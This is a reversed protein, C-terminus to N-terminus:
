RPCSRASGPATLAAVVAAKVLTAQYTPDVHVSVSMAVPIPTASTARIPTSPATAARLSQLVTTSISDPGNFWIQIVPQQMQGDWTWRAQVAQVGPQGAALAEVDAISVARGFLLASRPAFMRVQSAAQRDAGGAAAVPNLVSTIGKVPKALQTLGGAPPSAEGAGFRYRCVVTSGSPLRAGRVGDGFTVTSEGDDGQRVHYATGAADVDFFSPVERWELTASGVTLTSRVGNQDTPSSSSIYTLPKKRLTFSQNAMSADGVGLTESGVTEGRSFDALNAYVDAPPHLETELGSGQAPNLTRTSFNVGGALETATADADAVLFRGPKTGDPPEEIPPLLSLQADTAIRNDLEATLM